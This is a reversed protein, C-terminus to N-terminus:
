GGRLASLLAREGLLALVRRGETTLLWANPEGRAAGIGVNEIVGQRELRALLKSAQGEDAIGGTQAVERNNAYPTQAIARLVLTTRHTIRVPLEAARSIAQARALDKMTVEASGAPRGELEAQAAAQGLYPAVIFAMLSPALEVLKGGSAEVLSTRIVSFVGGVILEDTLAPTPQPSGASVGVHQHHDLLRALVNHLRTRCECTVGASFPVELILLRAWAPHDDCFGLLAVLGSRVRELWGHQRSVATTVARSLLAIGQEHAARYCSEPTPFIERFDGECVGARTAV